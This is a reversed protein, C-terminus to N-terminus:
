CTSDTSQLSPGGRAVEGPSLERLNSETTLSLSGTACNTPLPAVCTFAVASSVGPAPPVGTKPPAPGFNLPSSTAALWFAAINGSVSGGDSGSTVGTNITLTAPVILDFPTAQAVGCFFIVAVTLFSGRIAAFRLGTPETITM